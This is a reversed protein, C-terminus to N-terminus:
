WEGDLVRYIAHAVGDEDNGLTERGAASKVSQVANAMAVGLGARSIMPLDNIEDGIAVVRQLPVDHRSALWQIGSWKSATPSFVELIHLRQGDPLSRAHEDAVVAGFHHMTAQDGFAARMDGIMEDLVGSLGCVGLRVTHEPHEDEDISAAFRHRVNMKELWWITVPDLALRNEGVVMLYDYGCHAPDKLIMVPHDHSLLRRTAASVLDASLAFRHLTSRTVPCGVISGGAVVVPDRQEIRGLIAECEVLGRGTCVVVKMGAARADAVAKANAPSVERRSDLLTGDLDLALIDYNPPPM